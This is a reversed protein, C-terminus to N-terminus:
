EGIFRPSRRERFAAMGEALDASRWARAFADAVEPDHQAEVECRNLMLKHGAITLPALAAIEDAWALADELAGLRQVLGLGAAAAGDIVEAALLMARAPGHGVMLALRQVTWHDVMLGLRAAPIGFRADATAVRLDCAIALQSGAGLAAGNVAAIVPQPTNRLSLLAERLAEVFATDEVQSLDAGACFHAGAGTLVLVRADRAGAVAAAIDRCAQRDIANRREQRDLTVLAVAGRRESRIV